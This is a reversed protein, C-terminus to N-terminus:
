HRRYRHRDPVAPHHYTNKETQNVSLNVPPGDSPAIIISRHPPLPRFVRVGAEETVVAGYYPRTEVRTTTAEGALVPSAPLVSAVVVALLIRM